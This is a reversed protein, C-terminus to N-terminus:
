DKAGMGQSELVKIMRDIKESATGEGSAAAALAKAADVPTTRIGSPKERLAVRKETARRQEAQTASAIVKDINRGRAMEFAAQIGIGPFEAQIDKIEDKFDKADPHSIYFLGDKLKDIETRNELQLSNAVRAIAAIPNVEFEEQLEQMVRAPDIAPEAPKEVTPRRSFEKELYSYSKGLDDFSEILGPRYLGLRKLREVEPDVEPESPTEVDEPESIGEPLDETGEEPETLEPEEGEGEDRTDAELESLDDDTMEKGEAGHVPDLVLKKKAM